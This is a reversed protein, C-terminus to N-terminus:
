FIFAYPWPYFIIISHLLLSKKLKNHTDEFTTLIYKEKHLVTANLYSSLCISTEKRLSIFDNCALNSGSLIQPREAAEKCFEAHFFFLEKM